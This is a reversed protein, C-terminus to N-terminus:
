GGRHQWQRGARLRFVANDGTNGRGHGDKNLTILFQCFKAGMAPSIQVICVANEWGPLNSHLM